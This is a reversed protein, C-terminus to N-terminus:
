QGDSQVLFEQLSSELERLMIGLAGYLGDPDHEGLGRIIEPLFASVHDRYFARLDGMVLDLQANDGAASTQAARDWLLGMFHLELGIHDDPETLLRPAQVGWRDYFARVEATSPEFLLHERSTYVSEYPTVLVHGPGTFLLDYTAALTDLAHEDGADPLKALLQEAGKQSALPWEALLHQRLETVLQSDLPALLLRALLLCGGGLADCASPTIDPGSNPSM